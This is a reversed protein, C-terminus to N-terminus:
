FKGFSDNLDEEAIGSLLSKGSAHWEPENGMRQGSHGVFFQWGQTPIDFTRVKHEKVNQELSCIKDTLNDIAQEIKQAATDRELGQALYTLILQNLSIGEQEARNVLKEHLSKLTRVTIRGSADVPATPEPITWGSELATELWEDKVQMATKVAAEPTEGHAICGPLEPFKVFYANDDPEFEILMRYKLTKYYELNKM